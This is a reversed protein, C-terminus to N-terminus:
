VNHAPQQQQQQMSAPLPPARVADPDKCLIDNRDQFEKVVMMGTVTTPPFLLALLAVVGLLTIQSLAYFLYTIAVMFMGVCAVFSRVVCGCSVFKPPAIDGEGGPDPQGSLMVRVREHDLRKKERRRERQADIQERTKRPRPIYDPLQAQGVVAGPASGAASMSGQSSSRLTPSSAGYAGSPAYAGSHGPSGAGYSGSPAYAGSGFGGSSAMMTARHEQEEYAEIQRLAEEEEEAESGSLMDDDDYKFEGIMNLDARRCQAFVNMITHVIRFTIHLAILVLLFVIGFIYLLLYGIAKFVYGVGRCCGACCRSCCGPGQDIEEDDGEAGDADANAGTGDTADHETVTVGNTAAGGGAASPKKVTDADVSEIVEIDDVSVDGADNAYGRQTM